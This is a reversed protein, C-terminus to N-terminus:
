AAAKRAQYQERMRALRRARYDPDRVYYVATKDVGLFRAIQAPGYRGTGLLASILVQRAAYSWGGIGAFFHCQTYGRLDDPSVDKISREDVDGPAILGQAILNRLWAAAFPDFENYYASM